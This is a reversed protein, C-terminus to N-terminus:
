NKSLFVSPIAVYYLELILYQLTKNNCNDKRLSPVPLLNPTIM